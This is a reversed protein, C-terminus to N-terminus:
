RSKQDFIATGDQDVPVEMTKKQKTEESYAVMVKCQQVKTLEVPGPINRIERVQLRYRVIVEDQQAM